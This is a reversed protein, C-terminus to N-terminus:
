ATKSCVNPKQHSAPVRQREKKAPRRAAACGKRVGRAVNSGPSTQSLQQQPTASGADPQRLTCRFVSTDPASSSPSPRSRLRAPPRSGRSFAGPTRPLCNASCIREVPRMNVIAWRAESDCCFIHNSATSASMFILITEGRKVYLRLPCRAFQWNGLVHLYLVCVYQGVPVSTTDRRQPLAMTRGLLPIRRRHRSRHAKPLHCQLGSHHPVDTLATTTIPAWHNEEPFCNPVLWEAPSSAAPSGAEIPSTAESPVHAVAVADSRRCYHSSLLTRQEESM